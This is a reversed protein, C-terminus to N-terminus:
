ALRYLDDEGEVKVVKVKANPAWNMGLRVVCRAMVPDKREGFYICILRPNPFPKLFRAEVEAEV